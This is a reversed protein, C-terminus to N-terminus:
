DMTVEIGFHDSIKIDNVDDFVVKYSAIEFKKSAFVYDIRLGSRNRAWGDIAEEVTCEGTRKKAAVFADQLDLSSKTVLDYGENSKKADNNFDGVVLLSGSKAKLKEELTQWEPAFSDNFGRWWSLHVNTIVIQEQNVTTEGIVVKRTHYDAPNSSKSVFHSEVILPTKSLLGIGEHFRDYGIHNYSWNWYYYCGLEKLHETLCFLFNNQRIAQQKETPQFYSDVTVLPSAIGQNVEQLGVLDYKEKAIRQALVHIQRQDDAEM